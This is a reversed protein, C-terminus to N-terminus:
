INSHISFILFVTIQEASNISFGDILYILVHRMREKLIFWCTQLSDSYNTLYLPLALKM